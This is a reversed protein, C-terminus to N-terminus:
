AFFKVENFDINKSFDEPRFHSRTWDNSVLEELHGGNMRFNESWVGNCNEWIAVFQKAKLAESFEIEKMTGKGKKTIRGRKV